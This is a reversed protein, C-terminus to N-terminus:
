GPCPLTDTRPSWFPTVAAGPAMRALVARDTADLAFTVAEGEVRLVLAREVVERHEDDLPVVLSVTQGPRLARHHASLPLRVLIASPNIQPGLDTKRLVEGEVLPRLVVHGVADAVSGISEGGRLTASTLDAETLVWDPPLATATVLAQQAPPVRALAFWLAAVLALFFLIVLADPLHRRFRGPKGFPQPDLIRDAADDALIERLREPPLDASKALVVLEKALRPTALRKWIAEVTSLGTRIRLAWVSAAPFGDIRHLKAM